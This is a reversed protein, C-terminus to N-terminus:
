DSGGSLLSLHALLVGAGLAFLVRRRPAAREVPFHPVAATM